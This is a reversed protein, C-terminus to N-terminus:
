WRISLISCSNPARMLSPVAGDEIPLKLNWVCVLTVAATAGLSASHFTEM